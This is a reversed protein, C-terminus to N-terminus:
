SSLRSRQRFQAGYMKEDPQRNSTAVVVAGRLFMHEFLYRLVMADAIDTVQLEDFCLLKFENTIDTAVSPIPDFPRNRSATCRLTHLQEHVM